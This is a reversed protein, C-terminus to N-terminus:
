ENELAQIAIKEMEGEYVIMRYQLILPRKKSIEIKNRGPFVVNQMSGKERLIWPQPHGPNQPHSIVVVGEKKGKGDLNGGINMWAGAELALNQPKVEGNESEFSLEEPLPIRWSFGGYGKADESGGIFLHDELATLKISFDIVRYDNQAAHIKLAANEQLFPKERGQNDLWLPSKWYVSTYLLCSDSYPVVRVDAVDWKFNELAWADGIRKDGIYTQHWAWFIGRHHLHDAPFDETLVNNSLGYLPHIYNARAFQGKLSKTKRQYFLVSDASEMILVGQRNETIGWPNSQGPCIQLFFFSLPVFLIRLIYEPKKM